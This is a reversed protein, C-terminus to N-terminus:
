SENGPEKRTEPIPEMVTTANNVEIHRRVRGCFPRSLVQSLRKRKVLQRAVQQAVAVRDEALVESFLHSVHTNLLHQGRWARRSLSSVHLPHNTRNPALAEIMDDNEM